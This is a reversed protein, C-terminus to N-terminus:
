IKQTLRRLGEIDLTEEHGIFVLADPGTKRARTTEWRSGVGQILFRAGSKDTVFGKGRILDPHDQALTRTLHLVDIPGQLHLIHVALSRIDHHPGASYRGSKFSELVLAPLVVGNTTEVIPANFNQEKLWERTTELNTVDVLDTKNLIIIDADVLQKQATEGMYKDGATQRVREADALTVVCDVAFGGLLSLSTAIAGPVAVGSAEILIHDPRPTLTGLKMMAATLDNGYSCCVCGGAISILTEDEAEILDRDISLDGFENVLVALRLGDAHRLLHNVMTTKGAGLYGAIVTVPLSTQPHNM